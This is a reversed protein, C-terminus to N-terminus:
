ELEAIPSGRASTRRAYAPAADAHGILGDRSTRSSGSSSYSVRGHSAVTGVPSVISMGSGRLGSESAVHRPFQMSPRGDLERPSAASYNERWAVPDYMSVVQSSSGPYRPSDIMERVSDTGPNFGQDRESRPLKRRHFWMLTSIIFLIVMIGGISSGIAVGAVQGSGMGQQSTQTATPSQTTSTPDSTSRSTSSSTVTSLAIPLFWHDSSPERRM